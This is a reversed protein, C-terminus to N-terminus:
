WYLTFDRCIWDILPTAVYRLIALSGIVLVSVAVLAIRVQRRKGM